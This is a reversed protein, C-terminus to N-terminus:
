IVNYIHRAFLSLMIESAPIVYLCFSFKVRAVHTGTSVRPLFMKNRSPPPIRKRLVIKITGRRLDCCSVHEIFISLSNDGHPHNIFFLSVEEKVAGNRAEIIAGGAHEHCERADDTIVIWTLSDM